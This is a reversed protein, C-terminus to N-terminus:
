VAQVTLKHGEPGNKAVKAAEAKTVVGTVYRQLTEDYVAHGKTAEESQIPTGVVIEEAQNSETTEPNDSM